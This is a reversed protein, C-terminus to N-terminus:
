WQLHFASLHTKSCRLLVLVLNWVKHLEFSESMWTRCWKTCWKLGKSCRQVIRQPTTSTLLRHLLNFAFLFNNVTQPAQLSSMSPVSLSWWWTTNPLLPVMQATMSKPKTQPKAFAIQLCQKFAFPLLTVNWFHNDWMASAHEQMPWLQLMQKILSFHWFSM